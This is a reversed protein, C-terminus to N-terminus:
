LKECFELTIGNPDQFLCVRAHLDPLDCCPLTIKVGEALLMAEHAKVDEVVFALHRLGVDSDKKENEGSKGYYDFLELRGGHPLAFYEISFTGKDVFELKKFGLIRGYFDRSKEIDKVNIAIHDIAKIKM